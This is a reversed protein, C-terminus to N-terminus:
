PVAGEFSHLGRLVLQSSNTMTLLTIGALIFQSLPLHVIVRGTRQEKKSPKGQGVHWQLARGERTM